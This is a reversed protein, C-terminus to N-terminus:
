KGGRQLCQVQAEHVALFAKQLQLRFFLVTQRAYQKYAAIVADQHQSAGQLLCSEVVQDPALSALRERQEIVEFNRQLLARTRDTAAYKELKADLCDFEPQYCGAEHERAKRYLKVAETQKYAADDSHLYTELEKELPAVQALCDDHKAHEQCLTDAKPPLTSRVYKVKEEAIRVNERWRVAIPTAEVTRERQRIKAQKADAAAEEELEAACDILGKLCWNAFTYYELVAEGEGLGVMAEDECKVKAAPDVQAGCGPFSRRRVLDYRKDKVDMSCEGVKLDCEKRIESATEGWQKELEARRAVEQDLKQEAAPDSAGTPTGAACGAAALAM